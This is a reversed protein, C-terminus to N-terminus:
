GIAIMYPSTQEGYSSSVEILYMGPEPAEVEVLREEGSRALDSWLTGDGPRTVRVDLSGTLGSVKVAFGPTGSPVMVCFFDRHPSSGTEDTRAEDLTIEGDAAGGISLETAPARCEGEAPAAAGTPAATQEPTTTIAVTFSSYGDREGPAVTIFYPGPEPDALAIVEDVTGSERSDWFPDINYQVTRRFGYGVGLTLDASMDTVSFTVLDVGDPVDVWFCVTPEADSNEATAPTGVGVETVQDQCLLGTGSSSTTTSTQDDGGAGFPLTTETGTPVTPGTDPPEGLLDDDGCATALVVLVLLLTMLRRDISM